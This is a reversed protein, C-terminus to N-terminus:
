VWARCVFNLFVRLHYMKFVAVGDSFLLVAVGGALVNRFMTNCAMILLRSITM